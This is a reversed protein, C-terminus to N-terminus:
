RPILPLVVHSPHSRDHLIRQIAVSPTKEEAVPRGTNMNRDFRPFNSSSVELRIAHGKEFVNSVSWLDITYGYVRGPEILKPRGLTERYRARIIGDTLLMAVGCPWVDVLKATFDTDVAMSSAFLKVVVPGTVETDRELEPTSYVLVDMRSEIESQDYPGGPNFTHNCCLLGGKTPVPNMPDYVFRDSPEDNPPKESLRGDGEVSNASGGGRMFYRRYRTRALPWEKEDRWVNEGMVFIRVPREKEVGNEEGKLWHDYWRLVYGEMDVGEWSAHHGFDLEGVLKNMWPARGWHMWPGMVLKQQRSLKTRGRKKMGLYNNITGQQFIDYWGGINLAPINIRAHYRKLNIKEWYADQSPHSIWDYFFDSSGKLYPLKKVPIYNFVLEDLADAVELIKEAEKKRGRRLLETAAFSDFCWAEVFSLQLAGNRYYWENYYNSATVFPAIAKLSPVGSAAALWQVAGVYSAGYMGVKGSSWPQSSCWKVTDYGDNMENRLPDFEGESAWRGRVDQIVVAYGRDVARFPRLGLYAFATFTKDYPTRQLLVPYKGVKEPRYVDARTTTGDRMRIPVNLDITMRVRKAGPWSESM